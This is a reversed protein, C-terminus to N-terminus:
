YEVNKNNLIPELHMNLERIFTCTQKPNSREEARWYVDRMRKILENVVLYRNEAAKEAETKASEEIVILERHTYIDFGTEDFMQQYKIWANITLLRVAGYTHKHFIHQCPLLYRCFFPCECDLQTLGPAVKGKEIRKEVAHFESILLQQIAFPFKYIEQLTEHDIGVASINKTRFEFAVYESDLCKKEDLAVIKHFAGILGYQPSTTQKM